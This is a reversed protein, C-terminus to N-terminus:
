GFIGAKRLVQKKEESYGLRNLIEENHEGLDPPSVPPIKPYDAMAIPSTVVQQGPIDSFEQFVGAAQM